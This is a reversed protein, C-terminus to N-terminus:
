RSSLFFNLIKTLFYIQIYNHSPFAPLRLSLIEYSGFSLYDLWNKTLPNGIQKECFIIEQTLRDFYGSYGLQGM